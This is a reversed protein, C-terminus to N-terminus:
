RGSYITTPSTTNHACNRVLSRSPASPTTGASSFITAAIRRRQLFARIMTRPSLPKQRSSIM